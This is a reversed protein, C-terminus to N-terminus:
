RSDLVTADDRICQRKSLANRRIYVHRAPLPQTKLCQEDSVSTSCQEDECDSVPIVITDEEADIDHSTRPSAVLEPSLFRQNYERFYESSPTGLSPLM